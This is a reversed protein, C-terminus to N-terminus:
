RGDGGKWGNRPAHRRLSPTWLACVHRPRRVPPDAEDRYGLHVRLSTHENLCRLLFGRHTRRLASFEKHALTWFVCGYLMGTIVEAKPFHVKEALSVYPNGYIAQSYKTLCEWAQGSPHKLEPTAAGISNVTDGHYIPSEAHKHSQGAAEVEVMDVKMGPSHMHITVTKTEAVILGFAACASKSLPRVM